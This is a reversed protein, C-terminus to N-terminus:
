SPASSSLSVRVRENLEIYEEKTLGLIKAVNLVIDAEGKSLTGDAHVKMLIASFLRKPDLENQGGEKSNQKAETIISALVDASVPFRSRVKLFLQQEAPTIEGDHFVEKAVLRLVDEKTCEECTSVHSSKTVSPAVPNAVPTQPAATVEPVSPPPAVKAMEQAVQEDAAQRAREWVNSWLDQRRRKDLIATVHEAALAGSLRWAKSLPSIAALSGDALLADGLTLLGELHNPYIELAQECLKIAKAAQNNRLELSALETLSRYCKPFRTLEDDFAQKARRYNGARKLYRGWVVRFGPLEGNATVAAEAAEAAEAFRKNEALRCSLNWAGSFDLLCWQVLKTIDRNEAGGSLRVTISPPEASSLVSDLAFLISGAIPFSEGIVIRRDPIRLRWFANGEEDAPMELDVHLQNLLEPVLVEDGRLTLVIKKEAIKQEFDLPCKM